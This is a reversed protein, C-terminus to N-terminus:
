HAKAGGVGGAEGAEPWNFPSYRSAQLAWVGAVVLGVVAAMVPVLALASGPVVGGYLPDLRLNFAAGTPAHPPLATGPSGPTAAVRLLVSSAPAGGAPLDPHQVWVSGGGGGSGPPGRTTSFVLKETDLLRRGRVVPFAAAAPAGEAEDAAPQGAALLHRGAVAAAVDAADEEDTRHGPPASRFPGGQILSLEFHAPRSAPYSVKLEYASDPALDRVCFSVASGFAVFAGVLEEGPALCAELPVSARSVTLM